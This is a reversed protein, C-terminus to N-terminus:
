KVQSKNNMNLRVITIEVPELKLPATVSAAIRVISLSVCTIAQDQIHTEAGSHIGNAAIIDM